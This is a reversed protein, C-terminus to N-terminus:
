PLVKVADRPETNVGRQRTMLPIIAAHIEMLKSMPFTKAPKGRRGTHRVGAPQLMLGLTLYRLCEASIPPDLWVAAEEITLYVESM